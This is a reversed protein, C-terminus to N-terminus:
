LLIRSYRLGPATSVFSPVAVTGYPRRKFQSRVELLTHRVSIPHRGCASGARSRGIALSAVQTRDQVCMVPFFPMRGSASHRPMDALITLARMARVPAGCPRAAQKGTLWLTDGYGHLGDAAQERIRGYSPSSRDSSTGSAVTEEHGIATKRSPSYGVRDLWDPLDFLQGGDRAFRDGSEPVKCNLVKGGRLDSLAGFFVVYECSRHSALDTTNVRQLACISL